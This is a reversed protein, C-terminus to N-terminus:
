LRRKPKPHPITPFMNICRLNRKATVPVVAFHRSITGPSKPILEEQRIMGVQGYGMVRRYTPPIDKHYLVELLFAKTSVETCLEESILTTNDVFGGTTSLESIIM